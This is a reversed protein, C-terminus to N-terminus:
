VSSKTIREVKSSGNVYSVKYLVNANNFMGDQLSVVIFQSQPFHEKLMLGLNATHSLDLAADIEDFIYIPAPKYLLLALILSLALLSVQGGSLESLSKKWQNNFAVKLELGKMLTKPDVQSLKAKTGPLLTSYISNISKNVKEYIDELADKRKKDLEDIANQINVKDKLIIEKKKVLDNYEKEYQDAMVDVKMNVKRKLIANEEKLKSLKEYEAKPDLNTFDYDTDKMGFFNYESQIWKNENELKKMRDESEKIEKEYKGIKSEIKKLDSVYGDKKTGLREKQNKLSNLENENKTIEKKKEYLEAEIKKSEEVFKIIKNNISAIEYKTNELSEKENKISEENEKIEKTHESVKFDINNIENKIKKINKEFQTITTKINQIKKQYVDKKKSTSGVNEFEKQEIKLKNLEDLYKKEFENLEEIRVENRKIIEDTKSIENEIERIKNSIKDKDYENAQRRLTDLQNTYENIKKQGQLIGDLEAKSENINKKAAGIKEQINTLEVVKKLISEGMRHSGGTILGTPDFIDGDLNVCKVKINDTFALKNAIESTSCVFTNGFVFQMAPAYKKDYSILDLALRAEGNSIQEILKLKEQPITKSVIKNNPIMIVGYDFCKRSLLLSATVETDVVINYLRGGAVQEIAKAYKENELTFLRIIRGVVKSRDFNLEPDRFQVEVRSAYKNLIENQQRELISLEGQKKSIQKQIVDIMQSNSEGKLNSLEGEIFKIQKQFSSFQQESQKLKSKYENLELKKSKTENSLFSIQNILNIKEANSKNKNNMCESILKNLNLIELNDNKGNKFNEYNIELEKLYDKKNQYDKEFMEHNSLLDKKDKEFTELQTKLNQIIQESKYIEKEGNTLNKKLVDLKHNEAKVLTNKEKFKQELEKVGEDIKNKFLDEIKKIKEDFSNIQTLLSNVEKQLDEEQTKYQVLESRKSVVSKSNVYYDNATLIKLIRNIENERSKWTLYNQKDKMLKELQPSIEEVLLKTIEELKNEKKKILKLSSDKKIEYISTGAAEELLGLIEIPKMNVVQRIKGQLILFHPNNINLQVSQFLSKINDQTVSYGNLYYKSKGQYISRSIIIEDYDECGIPSNKKDKNDFIITVSAKNIGTNGKNYVLDQLNSARVNSLSSIGMLFCISDFINSKGSGNLGTIANFHRDLGQISTKVAYSKFGDIIIEKIHM